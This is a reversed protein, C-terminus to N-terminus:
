DQIDDKFDSGEPNRKVNAYRYFLLMECGPKHPNTYDEECFICTGSRSRFDGHKRLLKRTLRILKIPKLM